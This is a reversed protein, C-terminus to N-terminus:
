LSTLFKLDSSCILTHRKSASYSTYCYDIGLNKLVEFVENTTEQEGLRECDDIIICFRERLNYKAMDIIQPRSFHESGFPGDVLFFDFKKNSYEQIINKYSLTGYGKYNINELELTKFNIPYKGERENLFFDTWKNDHECTIAEVGYYNAYQHIMKSTQGLGFEIISRPKMGNLVRYLTYLLGYDAAWAGPSFSKYKLWESDIITDHFHHAMISEQQNRVIQHLQNIIERDNNELRHIGIGRRVFNLLKNM